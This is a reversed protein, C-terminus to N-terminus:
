EATGRKQRYAYLLVALIEEIGDRSHLPFVATFTEEGEPSETTISYSFTVNRSESQKLLRQLKAVTKDKPHIVYSSERSDQLLQRFNRGDELPSIKGSPSKIEKALPILRRFVDLSEDMLVYDYGRMICTYMNQILTYEEQIEERTKESLLVAIKKASKKHKKEKRGIIRSIHYKMKLYNYRQLVLCYINFVTLVIMGIDLWLYTKDTLFAVVFYFATFFLSMIHLYSNYLIYGSFKTVSAVSTDVPHYNMNNGGKNRRKFAEFTLIVKRFLKVGLIEYLRSEISNLKSFESFNEMM